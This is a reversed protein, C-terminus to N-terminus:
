MVHGLRVRLLTKRAAISSRSAISYWQVVKEAKLQSHTKLVVTGQSAVAM